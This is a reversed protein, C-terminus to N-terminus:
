NDTTERYIIPDIVTEQIGRDNECAVFDQGPNLNDQALYFVIM